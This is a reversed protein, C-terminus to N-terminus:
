NKRDFYADSFDFPANEHKVRFEAVAFLSVYKRFLSGLGLLLIFVFCINADDFLFDQM